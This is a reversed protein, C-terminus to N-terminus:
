STLWAAPDVPRGDIQVELHLHPGTSLGSSGVAGILQGVKVPDGEGVGLSSLHCYLVRTGQGADVLVYLGAGGADFGWRAVGGAAAYVAAGAPAALDVGSHFHGGPCGPAAPELAVRTCGFAQTMAARPVVAALPLKHDDPVHAASVIWVAVAAAGLGFVRVPGM